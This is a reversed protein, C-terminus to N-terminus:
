NQANASKKIQSVVINTGVLVVATVVAAGIIRRGIRRILKRELHRVEEPTMENIAEAATM